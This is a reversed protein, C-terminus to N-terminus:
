ARGERSAEIGKAETGEAEKPGFIALRLQDMQVGRPKNSTLIAQIEPRKATEILKELLMSKFKEEALIVEREKLEAKRADLDHKRDKRQGDHVAHDGARLTALQKILMDVVEPDDAAELQSLINGTAIAAAGDSIKLGTSAVLKASFEALSQLRDAEAQQQCWDLWGGQRWNTLNQEGIPEGDWHRALITKVDELGNLWPLIVSAPQGDQLRVNLEERIARPLRAIKGKRTTSDASM